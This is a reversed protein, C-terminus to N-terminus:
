RAQRELQTGLSDLEQLVSRANSWADLQETLSMRPQLIAQAKALGEDGTMRMASYHRYARRWDSTQNSREAKRVLRVLTRTENRADVVLERLERRESASVRPGYRTEYTQMLGMLQTRVDNASSTLTTNATAPLASSVALGLAAILLLVFRRM